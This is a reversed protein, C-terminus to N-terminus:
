KRIKIHDVLYSALDKDYYGYYQEGAISFQNTAKAKTDTSAVYDKVQESVPFPIKGKTLKATAPNLLLKFYTKKYYNASSGLYSPRGPTYYLVPNYVSQTGIKATGNAMQTVQPRSEYGGRFGGSSGGGSIDIIDYTGITLVFEGKANTAVTIGETGKDLAKLLKKMSDVNKEESRKGMREEYAPAYSMKLFDDDEKFEMVNVLSATELNYVAIKISSKNLILAFLKKDKVFSSLYHKAASPSTEKYDIFSEKASFSNLDITIVHTPDSADDVTIVLSGPYSFLKAPKIANDLGPEESSKVLQLKALYESVENKSRKKGEPIHFPIIKKVPVGDSGITYLVLNSQKDDATITYYRNFESFSTLRKESRPIEFIRKNSITKNLFDVTEMQYYVNSSLLGKDTVEYLYYYVGNSATGGLYKEESFTFTTKDIPSKISGVIKFNQDVQVYEAKKNDKLVFAFGENQNNELFYSNYDSKALFSKEFEFPYTFVRKQSFGAQFLLCIIAPLLIMKKMIAKRNVPNFIFAPMSDPM